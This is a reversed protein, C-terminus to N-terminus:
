QNNTDEDLIMGFVGDVVMEEHEEPRLERLAFRDNGAFRLLDEIEKRRAYLQEFFRMTEISIGMQRLRQEHEMKKLLARKEWLAWQNDTKHTSMAEVMPVNHEEELVFAVANCCVRNDHAIAVIDLEKLKSVPVRRLLKKLADVKPKMYHGQLDLLAEIDTTTLEKRRTSATHLLSNVSLPSATATAGAAAGSLQLFMRRSPQNSPKNM